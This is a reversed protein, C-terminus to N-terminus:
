FNTAIKHAIITAIPLAGLTRMSAAEAARADMNDKTIDYRKLIEKIEKKAAARTKLGRSIAIGTPVHTYVYRGDGARVVLAVDRTFHEVLMASKFHGSQYRSPTVPNYGDPDYNGIAYTHHTLITQKM